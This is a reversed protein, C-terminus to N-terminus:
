PRGVIGAGGENVKVHTLIVTRGSLALVTEFDDDVSNLLLTGIDDDLGRCSSGHAHGVVLSQLGCLQKGLHGGEVATSQVEASVVDELVRLVSDLIESLPHYLATDFRLEFDEVLGHDVHREPQM